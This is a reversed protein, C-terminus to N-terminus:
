IFLNATFFQNQQDYFKRKIKLSSSFFFMSYFYISVTGHSFKIALKKIKKPKIKNIFVYNIFSALEIIHSLITISYYLHKYYIIFSCFFVTFFFYLGLLIFYYFIFLFNITFFILYRSNIIFFM